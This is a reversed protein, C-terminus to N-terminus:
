SENKFKITECEKQFSEGKKDNFGPILEYFEQIKFLPPTLCTFTSAKKNFIFELSKDQCKSPDYQSPDLYFFQNDQPPPKSSFHSKSPFEHISFQYNSDIYVDAPFSLKQISLSKIVSKHDKLFANNFEKDLIIEAM